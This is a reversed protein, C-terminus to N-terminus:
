KLSDLRRELNYLDVLAGSLIGWGIASVLWVWKCSLNLILNAIFGIISILNGILVILIIGLRIIKEKKDM